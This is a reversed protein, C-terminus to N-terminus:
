WNSENMEGAMRLAERVAEVVANTSATAGTFTDVDEAIHTTQNEYIYDRLAPWIQEWSAPTESQENEVIRRITNRDVTVTLTIPAHAGDVTATYHGPIFFRADPQSPNITYRTGSIPTLASPDGGAEIIAQEVAWVIASASSTAGTTIDLDLTSQRDNIQHHAVQRFFWGGWTGGYVATDQGTLATEGHVLASGVNVHFYNRGMSVRVIMDTDESHLMRIDGDQLPQGYINMTNAPVTIEYFGPIFRDSPLPAALSQPVLDSPNAGAERITEEVAQIIATTTATAGSFADLGNTSQQVFIQDAVAPYARFFWGSGYTSDSHEVVHIDTIQNESFTVSVSLPGGHSDASGVYTGPTFSATAFSLGEITIAPLEPETASIAPPEVIPVVTSNNQNNQTGCATLVTALSVTGLSFILKKM